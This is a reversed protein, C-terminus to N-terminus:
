PVAGTGSKATVVAQTGVNVSVDTATYDGKDFPPIVVGSRLPYGIIGLRSTPRVRTPATPTKPATDTAAKAVPRTVNPCVGAPRTPSVDGVGVDLREVEVGGTGDAVGLGTVAGGLVTRGAVAGGAVARTVVAGM